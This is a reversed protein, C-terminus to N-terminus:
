SAHAVRVTVSSPASTRLQAPVAARARAVLEGKAKWWAAADSTTWLRASETRALEAALASASQPRKAPDKELCRMVIRELDAPLERGLRSSPRQPVAHMQQSLVVSTSGHFLDTGTLLFYALAGL